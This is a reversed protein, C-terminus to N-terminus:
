GDGVDGGGVQWYRGQWIVYKVHLAAANARYWNAVRWGEVLADGQAFEGPAGTFLDCARGRAHDSTPNWAHPDWCSVSRLTPGARFDGFADVTSELAYRTTATLCGRSTPDSLTCGTIAGSFPAPSLPLSSTIAGLTVTAGAGGGIVAPVVQAGQSDQAVAAQVGPRAAIGPRGAIGPQAAVGPQAAIGPRGAAPVTPPPAPARPPAAPPTSFQAIYRHVNAIYRNILSVCTSGCGAEGVKPVGTASGTVRGCGAIHCVLMADLPATPKKTAALHETVARLNTCVWPIGVRLHTEPVTIEDAPGGAAAWNRDNMQYLGSAGGNSDNSHAKPNWGSEAQVEAVVWVAPLEPCQRDLVDNIVPLMQKALKPVGTLDVGSLEPSSADDDGASNIVLLVLLAAMGAAVSSLMRIWADGSTLM